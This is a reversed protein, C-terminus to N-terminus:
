TRLRKYRRDLELLTAVRSAITCRESAAAGIPEIVRIVVKDHTEGIERFEDADALRRRLTDDMMAAGIEIPATQEEARGIGPRLHPMHASGPLM